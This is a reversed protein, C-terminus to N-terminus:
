RREADIKLHDVVEEIRILRERTNVMDLQIRYLGQQNAEIATSMSSLGWVIVVLQIVFALIASLTKWMGNSYWSSGNAM